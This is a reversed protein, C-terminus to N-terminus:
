VVYFCPVAPIFSVSSSLCLSVLHPPHYFSLASSSRPFWLFSVHCPVLGSFSLLAFVFPSRTCLLFIFELVHYLLFHPFVYPHPHRSHHLCLRPLHFVSSHPATRPWQAQKCCLKEFKTKAWSGKWRSFCQPVRVSKVNIAQWIVTSTM